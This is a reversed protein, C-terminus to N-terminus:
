GMKLLLCTRVTLGKKKKEGGTGKGVKGKEKERKMVCSFGLHLSPTNDKEASTSRQGKRAAGVPSASM